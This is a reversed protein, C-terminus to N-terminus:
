SSIMLLDDGDGLLNVKYFGLLKKFLWSFSSGSHILARMQIFTRSFAKLFCEKCTIIPPKLQSALYLDDLISADSLPDNGLDQLPSQRRAKCALPSSM